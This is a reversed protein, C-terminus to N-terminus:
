DIARNERYIMAIRRIESQKFGMFFARLHQM